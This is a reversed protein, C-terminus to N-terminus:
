CWCYAMFIPFCRKIYASDFHLPINLVQRKFIKQFLPPWGTCDQRVVFKGGVKIDRQIHSILMLCQCWEENVYQLWELHSCCRVRSLTEDADWNNLGDHVDGNPKMEPLTVHVVRGKFLKVGLSCYASIDAWLILSYNAVCPWCIPGCSEVLTVNPGCIRQILFEHRAISPRYFSRPIVLRPFILDIMAILSFARLSKLSSTACTILSFAIVAVLMSSLSPNNDVTLDLLSLCTRLM